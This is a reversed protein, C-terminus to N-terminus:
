RSTLIAEAVSSINMTVSYRRFDDLCDRDDYGFRVLCPSNRVIAMICVQLLTDRGDNSNSGRDGKYSNNGIWRLHTTSITFGLLLVIGIAIRSRSMIGDSKVRRPLEDVDSHSRDSITSSASLHGSESSSDISGYSNQAPMSMSPPGM